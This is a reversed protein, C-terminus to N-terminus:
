LEPRDTAQQEVLRQQTLRDALIAQLESVKAEADKVAQLDEPTSERGAMQDAAITKRYMNLLIRTQDLLEQRASTMDSNVLTHIDNGQAKLEALQAGVTTASQAALAAVEDTRKKTDRQARLLLEAAQKAQEAVADMRAWDELKESRRIRADQHRQWGQGLIALAGVIVGTLLGEM